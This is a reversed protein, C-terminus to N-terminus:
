NSKRNKIAYYFKRLLGMAVLVGATVKALVDIFSVLDGKALDVGFYGAIALIAPIIAVLVGKITLSIKEPDASSQLYRNM